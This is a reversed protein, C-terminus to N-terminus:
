CATAASRSVWDNARRLHTMENHVHPASSVHDRPRQVAVNPSVLSLRIRGQIGKARRENPNAM